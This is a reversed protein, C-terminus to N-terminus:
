ARSHITRVKIEDACACAIFKGDKTVAAAGGTYFVELKSKTRYTLKSQLQEAVM